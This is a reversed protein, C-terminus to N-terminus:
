GTRRKAKKKSRKRTPLGKESTGAFERLQAETMSEYMSRASGRLSRPSVRGRKAALALGAASRQRKSVAPMEGGVAAGALGWRVPVAAFSFPGM